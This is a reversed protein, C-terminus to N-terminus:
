LEVVLDGSTMHHEDLVEQFRLWPDTLTMWWRYILIMM